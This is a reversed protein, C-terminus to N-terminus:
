RGELRRAVGRYASRSADSMAAAPPPAPAASTVGAPVADDGRSQLGQPGARGQPRSDEPVRAARERRCGAAPLGPRSSVVALAVRQQGARRAGREEIPGRRRGCRRSPHSVAAQVMPLWSSKFFSNEPFRRVMEDALKGARSSDGCIAVALASWSLAHRGRSLALARSVALEAERCNGYAAEWLADGAAYVGAAEELGRGKALEMARKTLERAQRVRGAYAATVSQMALMGAEAPTGSVRDIQQQAAAADDQLLAIAYLMYHSYPPDLRGRWHRSSRGGGGRGIPRSLDVHARRRRVRCRRGPEPPPGRASRRSGGPLTRDRRLARVPEHPARLRSSLDAEM